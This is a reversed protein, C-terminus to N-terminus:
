TQEHFLMAYDLSHYGANPALYLVDTSRTLDIDTEEILCDIEHM